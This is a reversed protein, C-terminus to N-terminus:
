AAQCVSFQSAGLLRSMRREIRSPASIPPPRPLCGVCPKGLLEPNIAGVAVDAHEVDGHAPADDLHAAM